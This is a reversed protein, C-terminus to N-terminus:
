KRNASIIRALELVDPSLVVNGEDEEDRIALMNKALEIKVKEKESLENAKKDTIEAFYPTITAMKIELERYRNEKMRQKKAENALYFAPLLLVATVPIRCVLSVWNISVMQTSGLTVLLPWVVIVAVALMISVSIGFMWHAFIKANDAYVKQSGVVSEKGVLGYIGETKSQLQRMQELIQEAESNFRLRLEDFKQVAESCAKEANDECGSKLVDFERTRGNQAEQFDKQRKEQAQAFQDQHTQVQGAIRNEETAYRNSLESLKRSLESVTEELERKKGSLTQLHDGVERAFDAMEDRLSQELKGGDAIIPGWAIHRLVVDLEANAHQVYSANKSQRFENALSQIGQLHQALDAWNVAPLYDVDLQAIYSSLRLLVKVIREYNGREIENLLDLPVDNVWAERANTLLDHIKCNDFEMQRQDM